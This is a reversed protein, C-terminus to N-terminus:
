LGDIDEYQPRSHGKIKMVLDLCKGETKICNKVCKLVEKGDVVCEQECDHYEEHCREKSTKAEASLTGFLLLILVIESASLKVQFIDCMLSRM